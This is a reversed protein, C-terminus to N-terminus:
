YNGYGILLGPMLRTIFRSVRLNIVSSLYKLWVRVKLKWFSFRVVSLKLFLRKVKM